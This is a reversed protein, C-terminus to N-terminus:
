NDNPKEELLQAVEEEVSMKRKIIQAEPKGEYKYGIDKKLAIYTDGIGLKEGVEMPKTEGLKWINLLRQILKM